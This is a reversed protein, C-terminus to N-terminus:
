FILQEEALKRMIVGIFSKIEQDFDDRVATDSLGSWVLKDSRVDYITTELSFVKYTTFGPLAHYSLIFEDNVSRPYGPPAFYSGRAPYYGSVERKDVMRTVLMADINLEKVKASIAGYDLRDPFFLSYSPVAAAGHDKLRRAFEDELLKRDGPEQAAGIILIRSFQNGRYTDDRWVSTLTTTACSAILLLAAVAPISSIRDVRGM